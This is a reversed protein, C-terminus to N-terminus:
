GCNTICFFEPGDAPNKLSYYSPHSHLSATFFSPSVKWQYFRTLSQQDRGVCQDTSIQIFFQMASENRSDVYSFTMFGYFISYVTNHTPYVHDLTSLHYSRIAARVVRLYMRYRAYIYYKSSYASITFRLQYHLRNM